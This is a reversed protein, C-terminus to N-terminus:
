DRRLVAIAKGLGASKIFEVQYPYPGSEIEKVAKFIGPFKYEDVDDLVIVSSTIQRESVYRFESMVSQYDHQADLFALDIQELDLSKIVTDTEGEHFQVRAALEPWAAILSSRSRKGHTKDGYANWYLEKSHPLIDITHVTGGFKHHMALAMTLSSFGKATGTEFVTIPRNLRSALYSTEQFLRLAYGVDNLTPKISIGLRLVLQKFVSLQANSGIIKEADEEVERWVRSFREEYRSEEIRGLRMRLLLEYLKRSIGPKQLAKSLM